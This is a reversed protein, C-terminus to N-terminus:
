FFSNEFSDEIKEEKKEINKKPKRKKVQNQNQIRRKEAQEQEYARISEATPDSETGGAYHPGNPNAGNEERWSNLFDTNENQNLM